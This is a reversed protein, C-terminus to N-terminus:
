LYKLLDVDFGYFDTLVIGLETYFRERMPFTYYKLSEVIESLAKENEWVVTCLCWEKRGTSVYIILREEGSTTVYLKIRWCTKTYKDFNFEKM